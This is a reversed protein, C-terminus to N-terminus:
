GGSWQRLFRRAGEWVHRGGQAVSDVLYLRLLFSALRDNSWGAQIVRAPSFAHADLRNRLWTQPFAECAAPPLRLEFLRELLSLTTSMAVELGGQEARVRMQEWDLEPEVELYRALDVLWSVRLFSHNAAHVALYLFEDEPALWRVARGDLQGERTREQVREDDFANGGLGSFLRFHLEVLGAPGVWPRHHHEEFADEVGPILALQLGLAQLAGEAVAVEAPLVLVDVDSSPRALPQDSFLRSGLGYGKLLVPTVQVAAFADLADHTLRKLKAARLVQARAAQTVLPPVPQGTSSLEDAVWAALGHRVVAEHWAPWRGFIEFLPRM